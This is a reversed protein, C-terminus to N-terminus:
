RGWAPSRVARRLPIRGLFESLTIHNVGIKHILFSFLLVLIDTLTQQGWLELETSHLRGLLCSSPKSTTSFLLFVQVDRIGSSFYWQVPGICFTHEPAKGKKGKALCENLRNSIEGIM